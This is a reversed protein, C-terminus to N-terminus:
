PKAKAEDEPKAEDKNPGASREGGRGRDDRFGGRGEARFGGRGEGRFGGRGGGRGGREDRGQKSLMVVSPGEELEEVRVTLYRLVDENLRMNREMEQVADSPADIHILAYHGKRNKKIKYALNRLGWMESKAIRGGNKEIIESFQGVLGEVQSSSVDQRAIFVCEYLPM